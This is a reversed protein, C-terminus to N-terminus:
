EHTRGQFSSRGNQRPARRFRRLRDKIVGPSIRPANDARSRPKYTLTRSLCTITSAHITGSSFYTQKRVLLLPHTLVKASPDQDNRAEMGMKLPGGRPVERSPYHEFSAGFHLM